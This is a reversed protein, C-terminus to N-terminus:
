RPDGLVRIALARFEDDDVFGNEEGLRKVRDLLDDVQPASAEWGGDALRRRVAHRGSHKGLPLRRLNGVAEPPICEYTRPDELVAAAHIGSEHTFANQGVLPLCRPMPLGAAEYVTSALETLMTSDVGLDKGYLYKMSAVFQELPVNGSREGIGGVTTCVINAGAIVGALANATALGFDNHLHISIPLKTNFSLERVMDRIGRPSVTGLTDTIGVRDAGSEEAARYLRALVEPETRTSDETSFSTKIGREVGYSVVNQVIRELEDLSMRVKHQLHLPSSGIFLLIRDAGCDVARDVDERKLRGLVLIDANLNMSAIKRVTDAELKSVCPFGAEIEHVGARDLLSAIKVKQQPSFCVGPMQEGDRLTTDYIWIRREGFAETAENMGPQNYPSM